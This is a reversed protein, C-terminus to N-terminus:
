QVKNYFNLEPIDTALMGELERLASTIVLTIIEPEGDGVESHEAMEFM